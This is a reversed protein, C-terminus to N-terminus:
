FMSVFIISLKTEIIKTEINQSKIPKPESPIHAQTAISGNKQTHLSQMLISNLQNPKMPPNYVTETSLTSEQSSSLNNKSYDDRDYIRAANIYNSNSQDIFRGGSETIGLVLPWKEEITRNSVYHKYQSLNIWEIPEPYQNTPFNTITGGDYQCAQLNYRYIPMGISSHNWPYRYSFQLGISLLYKIDPRHHPSANMTDNIINAAYQVTDFNVQMGNITGEFEPYLSSVNVESDMPRRVVDRAPVDTQIFSPSNQDMPCRAVYRASVDKQINSSETATGRQLFSYSEPVDSCTGSSRQGAAWRPPNDVPEQRTSNHRFSQTDM